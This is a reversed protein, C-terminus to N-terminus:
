CRETAYTTLAVPSFRMTQARPRHLDPPLPPVLPGSHYSQDHTHDNRRDHGVVQHGNGVSSGGFHDNPPHFFNLDFTGLMATAFVAKYALHAVPWPTHYLANWNEFLFQHLVANLRSRSRELIAWILQIAM